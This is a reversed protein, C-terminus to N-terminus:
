SPVKEVATHYHTDNTARILANSRNTWLELEDAQQRICDYKGGGGEGRVGVKREQNGLLSEEEEDYEQSERRRIQFVLQERM